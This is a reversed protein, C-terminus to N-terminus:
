VLQSSRLARYRVVRKFVIIAITNETVHQPTIRNVAVLGRRVVPVRLYNTDAGGQHTPPTEHYRRLASPLRTATHQNSQNKNQKHKKQLRTLTAAIEQLKANVNWSIKARSIRQFHNDPGMLVPNLKWTVFEMMFASNNRYRGRERRKKSKGSSEFQLGAASKKPQSNSRTRACRRQLQLWPRSRKVLSQRWTWSSGQMREIFLM